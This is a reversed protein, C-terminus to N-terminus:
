PLLELGYPDQNVSSDILTREPARPTSSLIQSANDYVFVKNTGSAFLRDSGRDYEVDDTRGDNPASIAYTTTQTGLTSVQNVFTIADGAIVLRDTKGMYTMGYVFAGLPINTETRQYGWSAPPNDLSGSVLTSANSFSLITSEGALVRRLVYLRDRADDYAIGFIDAAGM